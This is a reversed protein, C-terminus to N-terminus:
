GLAQAAFSGDFRAAHATESGVELDAAVEAVLGVGVIAVVESPEGL